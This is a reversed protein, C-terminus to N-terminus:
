ALAAPMSFLFLAQHHIVIGLVTHARRAARRATLLRETSVLTERSHCLLSLGASAEPSSPERDSCLCSAGQLMLLIMARSHCLFARTVHGFKRRAIRNVIACAAPTSFARFSERSPEFRIELLKKHRKKQVGRL